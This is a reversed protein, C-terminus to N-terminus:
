VKFNFISCLMVYVGEFVGGGVTGIALMAAHRVRWDIHTSYRMRIMEIITPIVVDENGQFSLWNLLFKGRDFAETMGADVCDKNDVEYWLPAEVIYSMMDLAVAVVRKIEDPSLYYLFNEMVDMSLEDLKSLVIVAAVKVEESAEKVEAVRIMCWFVDDEQAEFIQPEGLSVLEVLRRLKSLVIENNAVVEEEGQQDIFKLLVPLLNDCVDVTRGLHASMGMLTISADFTLAQLKHDPLGLLGLSLINAFLIDYNGKGLWFDRNQSVELPMDALLMLGKTENSEESFCNCVYQLIEEWGGLPYDYLRGTVLCITECLPPLLSEESEVKISHLLPKKLEILMSANLKSNGSFIHHLLGVAEIRILLPPHVQILKALKLSFANPYHHAFSEFIRVPLLKKSKIYDKIAEQLPLIDNSQLIKAAHPQLEFGYLLTKNRREEIRRRKKSREEFISRPQSSPIGSLPEEPLSLRDPRTSM